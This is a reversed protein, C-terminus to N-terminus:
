RNSNNLRDLAYFAAGQCVVDDGLRSLTLVSKESSFPPFILPQLHQWILDLFPQNSKMVGGGLVIRDPNLLNIAAALPGSVYWAAREVVQRAGPENAHFAKMLDPPDIERGLLQRSLNRLGPGSCVTELCGRNGCPCEAGRPDVIVHGIEAEGLNGLQLLQGDRVIGAGTGTGLTVYLLTGQGWEPFSRAEALAALNCDNEIFVPAEFVDELYRGADILEWGREHFCFLPREDSRRVTGGFGLGVADITGTETLEIGAEALQRLTQPAEQSPRRMQQRRAILKGNSDTLAAVLKTGGSELCLIAM